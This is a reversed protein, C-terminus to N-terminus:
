PSGAGQPVGECRRGLWVSLGVWGAALPLFAVGTAALGLGAWGLGAMSWAGLQDGARYVVTDLLHKAQYKEDPELVTYLAERAPRAVAYATARRLVQFPVLVALVPWAGLALLGLGTGLPLLLLTRGIGLRQLLVPTGIAQIVLTLGNVWLDISAFMATRADEEPLAQALIDAQAFYVVTSSVTYLGMWAMVALLYPSRLVGRLGALAGGGGPAAPQRPPRQPLGALTRRTTGAAVVLGLAAVGALSTAGLWPALQTSLLSGGMAGASGGLALWSFRARAQERSFGDAAMSWFASLVFLNFVSTWVFFVHSLWPSDFRASAWVFLALM